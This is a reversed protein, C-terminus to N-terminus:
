GSFPTLGSCVRFLGINLGHEVVINKFCRGHLISEIRDIEAQIVPHVGQMM